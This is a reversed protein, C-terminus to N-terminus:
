SVEELRMREVAAAVREHDHRDTFWVGSSVEDGDWRWNILLVGHRGYYRQLFGPVTAVSTLADRPVWLPEAGERDLRVGAAGVQVDARAVGGAAVLRETLRGVPVTGLYKGVVATDVGPGGAASPRPLQRDQRRARRRWGLRLLALAGTIVALTLAVLLLRLPWQTVAAQESLQDAAGVMVM